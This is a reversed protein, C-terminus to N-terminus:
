PDIQSLAISEVLLAAPPLLSIMPRRKWLLPTSLGLCSAFTSRWDCWGLGTEVVLALLCDWVLSSIKTRHKRIKWILCSLIVYNLYICLEPFRAGPFHYATNARKQHSKFFFIILLFIVFKFFYIFIYFLYM